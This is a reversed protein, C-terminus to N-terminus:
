LKKQSFINKNNSLLAVIGVWSILANSFGSINALGHSDRGHPRIGFNTQQPREMETRAGAPAGKRDIIFNTQQLGEIETYEYM